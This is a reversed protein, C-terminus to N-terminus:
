LNSSFCHHISPNSTSGEKAPMIWHARSSVRAFTFVCVSQSPSQRPAVVACILSIPKFNRRNQSSNENQRCCSKSSKKLVFIHHVLVKIYYMLCSLVHKILRNKTVRPEGFRWDTFLPNFFVTCLFKTSNPFPSFFHALNLVLRTHLAIELSISIIIKSLLFFVAVRLEIAGKIEITVHM